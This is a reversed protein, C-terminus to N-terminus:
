CVTYISFDLKILHDAIFCFLWALTLRHLSSKPPWLERLALCVKFFKSMIDSINELLQPNEDEDGDIHVHVCHIERIHPKIKCVVCVM